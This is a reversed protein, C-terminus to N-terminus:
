ASVPTQLVDNRKKQPLGRVRHAEARAAYILEEINDPPPPLPQASELKPVFFRHEIETGDRLSKVLLAALVGAGLGFLLFGLAIAVVAIQYIM